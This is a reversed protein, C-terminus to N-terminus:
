LQKEYYYIYGNNKYNNLQFDLIQHTSNDNFMIWKNNHNGIYIYHGGTTSGSHYVIGKLIYNHRWENPIIIEKNIKQSNGNHKFRKLVVILHKPWNVIELRKSAITSRKCNDCYYSNEDMLKEIAKYNRYCDDLTNTENNIDLILFSNKENHISKHLCTKLKCKVTIKSEIEYINQISLNFIIDLFYIIFEFSDNQRYGIFEKNNKSVLEKIYFPNL